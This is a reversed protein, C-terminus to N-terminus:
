AFGDLVKGLDDELEPKDIQVATKQYGLVVQRIQAELRAQDAELKDVAAKIDTSEKACMDCIKQVNALYQSEIKQDKARHAARLELLEKAAANYQKLVDAMKGMDARDGQEMFGDLQNQYKQADARNKENSKQREADNAGFASNAATHADTLQQLYKALDAKRKDLGDYTDMNKDYKDCLQALDPKFLGKKLVPNRSLVDGYIGVMGWHRDLMSKAM